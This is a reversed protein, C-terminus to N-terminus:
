ASASGLVVFPGVTSSSNKPTLASHWMPQGDIRYVFRFATEDTAFNVHISSEARIGGKTITQYQSLSALMIDGTTNMAPSYENEIIPRGLLTNYPSNQFSGAPIFLSEYTDAMGLIQAMSDQGMLWVYDNLGAWRRAWMALIDVRKIYSATDRTVSILCPAKMIGLPKGVGDGNYIADEVQFRLEEPVTRGLWSALAQTDELQEDTAYCLAAIKKLKLEVQRFKPKSSTISSGEALWYGRLGGWRSGAARSTEDVGAYTMSNSNPGIPDQAVRALIQGENYMRDLIGAAYQPQLLYGGDAPVAESMGSPAKLPLLRVDQRQPYYAATKVAQFFEGASKFPQDAADKVVEVQVGAKTTAPLAKLAEEAGTKVAATLMEQLKEETIEMVNVGEVKVPLPEVALAEPASREAEATQEAPILSKLSVAVNRFEAPTPTLSADLGLPWRTIRQAKGAPKREVLHGATGSSWGLKGAEALSYIFKEYEDRLQLQTEAWVGFDDKKLPTEGIVRLGIKKDMGHHYYVPSKEAEGFDTEPTFFDGTADPDSATSYRVLYGGIKGDGLAKVEGGYTIITEDLDVSRTNRFNCAAGLASAADHISQIHQMDVRNNRAGIKLTSDGGELIEAALSKGWPVPMGEAEDLSKGGVISAHCIAIASEKDKGKAQVEEVCKDMKDWLEEPVNTYPM